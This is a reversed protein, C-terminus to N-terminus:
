GRFRSIGQVSLAGAILTSPNVEATGEAQNITFTVSSDTSQDLGLVLRDRNGGGAHVLAMDNSATWYHGDVITPCTVAWLVAGAPKNLTIHDTKTDDYSYGCDVVGTANSIAVMNIYFRQSSAQTVTLTQVSKEAFKYAWSLRQGNTDSSNVGSTSLLTWGDSVSTIADRSTIAAVMLDGPQCVISASLETGSAVSTATDMYYQKRDAKSYVFRSVGDYDGFIAKCEEASPENGAGFTETLDVLLIDDAYTTVGVEDLGVIVVVKLWIEEASQAERIKDPDIYIRGGILEWKGVSAIPVRTREITASNYNSAGYCVELAGPNEAVPLATQKAWGQLYFYHGFPAKCVSYYTRGTNYDSTAARTCSLSACYLGSHSLASDEPVTYSVFSSNAKYSCDEETADEFSLYPFLNVAEYSGEGGGGSVEESQGVPFLTLENYSIYVTSYKINKAFNGGPSATSRYDNIEQVGSSKNVSYNLWGRSRFETTDYDYETVSIGEPGIIGVTTYEDSEAVFFDPGGPKIAENIYDTYDTSLAYIAEWLLNICEEPAQLGSYAKGAVGYINTSILINERVLDEDGEVIVTRIGKGESATVTIEEGNPTITVDEWEVSEGGEHTGTVGYITVGDAINEPVLYADGAVNVASLGDYGSDPRVTILRGTPTVAKVQLVADGAPIGDIAEPLGKLDAAAAGSKAAISENAEALIAQLKATRSNIETQISM